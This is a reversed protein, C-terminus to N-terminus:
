ESESEGDSEGGSVGSVSESKNGIIFDSAKQALGAAKIILMKDKKIARSWNDLYSASQEESDENSIGIKACLFAAGFEAVLEERAYEPSGFGHMATGELSHRDTRSSHGTSHTMEHFLTSYYRVNSDFRNGEPMQITDLTPSYWAQSGGVNIALSERALYQMVVDQAEDILDIDKKETTEADSNLVPLKLGDCQSVNFVNYYRLMATKKIKGNDGEREDVKWFVILQAKEGKRVSGGLSVAQKFTLWRNDEAEPLLFLNVGRYPRKSVANVPANGVGGTVHWPRRWPVVGKAMQELIRSQVIEYVDPM